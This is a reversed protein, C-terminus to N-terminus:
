QDKALKSIKFFTQSRTDINSYKNSNADIRRDLARFVM